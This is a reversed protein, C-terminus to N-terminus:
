RPKCNMVGHVRALRCTISASVRGRYYGRSQEPYPEALPSSSSGPRDDSNFTRSIVNKEGEYM